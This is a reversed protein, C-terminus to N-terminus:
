SARRRREYYTDTTDLNRPQVRLFTFRPQFPSSDTLECHGMLGRGAAM